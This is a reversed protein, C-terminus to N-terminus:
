HSTSGFPGGYKFGWGSNPIPFQVTDTGRFVFTVLKHGREVHRATKIAESNYVTYNRQPRDARPCLILIDNELRNLIPRLALLVNASIYDAYSLRAEYTYGYFKTQVTNRYLTHVLQDPTFTEVLNKNDCYPLDVVWGDVTVNSGNTPTGGVWYDVRIDDESVGPDPFLGTVKAWTLKFHGSVNKYSSIRHGIKIGSTDIGSLTFTTATFTTSGFFLGDNHDVYQVVLRPKGEGAIFKIDAM